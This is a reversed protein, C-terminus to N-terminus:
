HTLLPKAEEIFDDYVCPMQGAAYKKIRKENTLADGSAFNLLSNGHDFLPAPAVIQNTRSDELFGFNGYHRDTNLIVADFVIMDNLAKTFAEGLQQYYARVAKM